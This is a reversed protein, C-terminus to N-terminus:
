CRMNVKKVYPAFAQTGGAEGIITLIAEPAECIVGSLLSIPTKAFVAPALPTSAGTMAAVRCNTLLPLLDEISSDLLSTATVIASTCDPLVRPLETMPLVAPHEINRDFVSLRLGRARLKPILPGFFGIMAMHEGDELRLEDLVDGTAYDLESRNLLANAAALAVSARLGHADGLMALLEHVPGGALSGAERLVGCCAALDDRRTYALGTRNDELTVATYSIGIRVTAVRVDGAETVALERLKEILM